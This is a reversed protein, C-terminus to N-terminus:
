NFSFLSSFSTIAIFEVISSIVFVLYIFFSRLFYKNMEIKNEASNKILLVINKSNAYCSTTLLLIGFILLIKAPFFVLLCYEIGRLSYTSYLYTAVAGIGASKFFSIVYVTFSGITSAGLILMLIFYPINSILLGSFIEAKAKYSFQTAFNVFYEQISEFVTDTNIINLICGAVIGFCVSLFSSLIASNESFAKKTSKLKNTTIVANIKM